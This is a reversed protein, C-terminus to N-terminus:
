GREVRGSAVMGREEAIVRTWCRTAKNIAQWALPSIRGILALTSGDRAAVDLVAEVPIERLREDSIVGHLNPLVDPHRAILALDSPTDLDMSTAPRVGSLVRVEYEHS